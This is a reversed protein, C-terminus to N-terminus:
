ETEAVFLSLQVPWEGRLAFRELKGDTIKVSEPTVPPVPYPWHKLCTAFEKESPWVAGNRSITLTHTDDASRMVDLRLGHPLYSSALTGPKADAQTVLETLITTLASTPMPNECHRHNHQFTDALALWENVRMPLVFRTRDGCHECHFEHQDDRSIIKIHAPSDTSM